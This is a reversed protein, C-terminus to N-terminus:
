KSGLAEGPPKFAPVKKAGGHDLSALFREEMIRNRTNWTAGAVADILEQVEDESANSGQVLSAEHDEVEAEAAAFGRELAPTESPIANITAGATADLPHDEPM